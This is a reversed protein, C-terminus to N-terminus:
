PVELVDESVLSDTVADGSGLLWASNSHPEHCVYSPSEEDERWSGAFTFNNIIIM